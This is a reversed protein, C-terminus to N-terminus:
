DLWAFNTRSVIHGITSPRVGYDEAIAKQTEGSAARKRIVPVDEVRVIQRASNGVRVMDRRNSSRTGYRLNSVCNNTPNSDNHCVEMGPPCDGIFAKAVLQHVCFRKRPHGLSVILHGSNQPWPKLLRESLTVKSYGGCLVNRRIVEHALSRVRGMDSVQYRGEFGPIDRWVEDM